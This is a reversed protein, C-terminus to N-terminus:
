ELAPEPKSGSGPVYDEATWSGAAPERGPQKPAFTIERKGETDITMSIMYTGGEFPVEIKGEKYKGTEEGYPFSPDKVCLINVKVEESSTRAFAFAVLSDEACEESGPKKVKWFGEFDEYAM